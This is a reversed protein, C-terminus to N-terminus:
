NRTALVDRGAVVTECLRRVLRLSGGRYHQEVLALEEGDLDPCWTEDQGREARLDALITRCVVPLDQRRPAPLVHVRFRDVLAPHSRRLGEVGNVTAVYSLGSLDTGCELYTDFFRAADDTLLPLIGDLLNGNQNGTGVKDLEDLVLLASAAGLRKLLQLPTSARGTSWQRSTSLITSDSAGGCGHVQWGLGLVEALRRAFRTKGSGPSGVLLLPRVVVHPRGVLDRLVADVIDAAYPFEAVLIERATALDPVRVLPWRKGAFPGWEARANHATTKGGKGEGDRASGPLHEVSALVLLSPGSTLRDREAKKQAAAEKVEAAWSPEPEDAEPAAVRVAGHLTEDGSQLAAALAGLGPQGPQWTWRVAGSLGLLAAAFSYGNLGHECQWAARERCYDWGARDGCDALSGAAAGAVQELETRLVVADEVDEPDLGLLEDLEELLRETTELLCLSQVYATHARRPDQWGGDRVGEFLGYASQWLALVRDDDGFRVVDRRRPRDRPCRAAVVLELLRFPSDHRSPPPTLGSLVADLSVATGAARNLAHNM